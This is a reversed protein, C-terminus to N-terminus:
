KNIQNSIALEALQRDGKRIMNLQAHSLKRFPQQSMVTRAIVEAKDLKKKEAAAKSQVM